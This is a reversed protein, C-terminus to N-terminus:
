RGSTGPARVLLTRSVLGAYTLKVKETEGDVAGIEIDVDLPLTCVLYRGADDATVVLEETHDRTPTPHEVGKVWWAVLVEIGPVPEGTEKNEVVGVIGGTERTPGCGADAPISLDVSAVRGPEVDIPVPSVPLGLLDSRHHTFAVEHRGPPIGTLRFRGLFDSTTALNLDTLFVTAGGLPAMRTSDFVSGTLSLRGAEVPGASSGIFRIEGGQEHIRLGLRQAAARIENQTAHGRPPLGAGANPDVHTVSQPMRLWWHQVVWDGDDLRRFDMRGGFPETPLNGAMPMRDYKFELYRLRSTSRDVWLTGQIDPPGRKKNLPEFGLGILGEQGRGAKEVRFCHRALFDDSLLTKADLGYFMYSGDDLSRIFGLEGLRQASESAFPTRGYGSTLRVTDDEIELSRINRGRSWLATQYPIGRKEDEWAAISLAKRVEEWLVSTQAGMERSVRCRGKGTVEIGELDVAKVSIEFRYPVAQGEVLTLTDSFTSAYGIREARLTYRGPAPAKLIFAGGTGSLVGGQRTGHDDVLVIFAGPIPAQTTGDVVQGRVVQARGPGALLAVVLLALGLRESGHLLVLGAREALDIMAGM